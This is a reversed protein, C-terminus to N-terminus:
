KQASCSHKYVRIYDVALARDTGSESGWTPYWDDKAAYFENVAHPSKDNWPKGGVGDPFYGATGAVAVNMMLYFEQDFPASKSGAWLNDVWSPFNGKKFMDDFSVDLLLNDDVFTKIGEPRWDLTFVHFDDAFSKGDPLAYEAHTMQYRNFEFSPGWHLTSAVKDYGGGPYDPGNGRSEVLDIEGSAPWGGYQYHAPLMWIAPWIWKGKPMKARVEVRGYRFKFSNASRVLGSQIPNLINGGAGAVRYCGYDYNGTCQTGPDTGWMDLVGGERLAEAGIRHETLTPRIYFIGDKVFTNTRNNIYAQVEFNGGGTLTLDHRWVSNDLKDFEDVFLLCRDKSQFESKFKQRSRTSSPNKNDDKVGTIEFEVQQSQGYGLKSSGDPRYDVGIMKHLEPWALEDQQIRSNGQNKRHVRPPADASATTHFILLSLLVLAVGGPSLMQTSLRM